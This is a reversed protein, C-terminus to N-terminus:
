PRGSPTVSGPAGAREHLQEILVGRLDELEGFAAEGERGGAVGPDLAALGRLAMAVEDLLDELVDRRVPRAGLSLRRLSGVRAVTKGRFSARLERFRALGAQPGQGVDRHVLKRELIVIEALLPGSSAGPLAAVDKRLAQLLQLAAGPRGEARHLWAEGLRREIETARAEILLRHGRSPPAGNPPTRSLITM